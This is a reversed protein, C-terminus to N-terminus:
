VLTKGTTADLINLNLQGIDQLTETDKSILTSYYSSDDRLTYEASNLDSTISIDISPEGLLKTISVLMYGGGTEAGYTLVALEKITDELLVLPNLMAINHMGDRLGPSYVVKGNVLSKGSFTDVVLTIQEFWQLINIIKSSVLALEKTIDGASGSLLDYTETTVMPLQGGAVKGLEEYTFSIDGVALQSELGRHLNLMQLFLSTETTGASLSTTADILAESVSKGNNVQSATTIIAKNTASIVTDDTSIVGTNTRARINSVDGAHANFLSGGLSTSAIDVSRVTTEGTAINLVEKKNYRSSTLSITSNNTVNFVTDGDMIGSTSLDIDSEISGSLTMLTNNLEIIVNFSYNKLIATKDLGTATIALSSNVVNHDVMDRSIREVGEEVNVELDTRVATSNLVENVNIAIVKLSM